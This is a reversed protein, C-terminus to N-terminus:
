NREVGVASSEKAHAKTEDWEENPEKIEEGVIDTTVFGVKKSGANFYPSGGNVLQDIQEHTGARVTGLVYSQGREIEISCDSNTQWGKDEVM